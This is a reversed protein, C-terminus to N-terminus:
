LEIKLEESHLSHYINQIEHVYEVVRLNGTGKFYYFYRGGTLRISSGGGKHCWVLETEKDFWAKELIEPTVPIPEAQWGDPLPYKDRNIVYFGIVHKGSESKVIEDVLLWEGSQNDRCYNGIRLENANIM